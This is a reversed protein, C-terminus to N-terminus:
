AVPPPRSRVADEFPAAPQQQFTGLVQSFLLRDFELLNQLVVELGHSAMQHLFVKLSEPLVALGAQAPLNRSWHHVRAMRLLISGIFFTARM